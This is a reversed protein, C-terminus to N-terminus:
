QGRSRIVDVAFRASTRVEQDQDAQAAQQLAPLASSSGILGLSRAAAERVQPSRDASLVESLPRVAQTVRGRGLQMVAEARAKEDPNALHQLYLQVERNTVAAPAATPTVQPPTTLQMPPPTAPPGDVPPPPPPTPYAPQVVTVPQQVVVPPPPYAAAGIPVVVAVGPYWPRYYYPRHCRYGPGFGVGVYVGGWASSGPLLAFLGVLAIWRPIRM